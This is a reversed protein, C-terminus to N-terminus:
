VVQDALGFYSIIWAGNALDASIPILAIDVLATHAEKRFRKYLDLIPLAPLTYGELM